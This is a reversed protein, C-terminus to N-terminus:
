RRSKQQTQPEELKQRRAEIAAAAFARPGELRRKFYRVYAQRNEAPTAFPPDVGEPADMLLDDPVGSLVEEIAEAVLLAGLKRDAEEIDAAAPLLVHERIPTFPSLMRTEDVSRWDHHFYLAAGHDILWVGGEWHLLNPNRPTRDINTTLADLWVIESALV